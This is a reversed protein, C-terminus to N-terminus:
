DKGICVLVQDPLAQKPVQMHKTFEDEQGITQLHDQCMDGSSSRLSWVMDPLVRVPVALSDSAVEAKYEKNM